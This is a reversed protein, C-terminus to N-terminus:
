TASIDSDEEEKNNGDFDSNESKRRGIITWITTGLLFAYCVAFTAILAPELRQILVDRYYIWQADYTYILTGEGIFNMANSNAVTYLIRTASQVVCNDYRADVGPSFSSDYPGDALDCGALLGYGLNSGDSTYWDTIAFGSMGAEGRLWRTMINYNSGGWSNGNKNFAIMVNMADGIEIAMEFPRLYIQRFTQEDLWAHYRERNTEQDNLVFHKNYVYLGKEQAGLTEYGGIMGTLFPDDSYFEGARGHYPNRQLGLGFGYIGAIGSWLADEGIAQGVRYAVENNFTAAIIGECPYGTPYAKKASSDFQKYFGLTDRMSGGETRGYLWEFGNSANQDITGPKGIEPVAVTQRRGSSFLNTGNRETLDLQGVIQAWKAIDEESAGKAPDFEVGVLDALQWESKSWGFTYATSDFNVKYYNAYADILGATMATRNEFTSTTNNANSSNGVSGIISGSVTTQAATASWNYRDFYPVDNATSGDKNPDLDSFLNRVVTSDVVAGNEVYDYGAGNIWYKYSQSRADSVEVTFVNSADGIGYTSDFGNDTGTTGGHKSKYISNVAEHANRAAVLLYKGPSLVYGGGTYMAGGDIEDDYAAFWKNADIKIEVTETEQPQLLRTKAYGVLQVAPKQVKHARDTVTIKQQLYIQVIEKGARTGTNTVPVRMILDDCDGPDSGTARLDARQKGHNGTYGQEISGGNAQMYLGNNYAMLGGSYYNKEPDPDPIVTPTGYTFTTYSLGYGFPYSVSNGYDYTAVGELMDEYRTEAYRYGVYMGEMNTANSGRSFNAMSPNNYQSTYWGASLGGSPNVTGVLIDAVAKIGDSGPFGIWLAAVKCDGTSKLIEPMDSQPPNAQNILVILKGYKEKLGAIVAKENATLALYDDSAAENTQGGRGILSDSSNNNINPAESGENTMRGLVYIATTDKGYQGYNRVTDTLASWPAEVVKPIKANTGMTGWFGIEDYRRYQLGDGTNYWDKVASNMDLGVKDFEDYFFQRRNIESKVSYARPDNIKNNGAGDLCYMPDYATVGFLSVKSDAALPLINNDNQLLVTGESQTWWAIEGNGNLNDEVSSYWTKYRVPTKGTNVIVDEPKDKFVWDTLLNEVQEDTLLTSAIFFIGLLIAAINFLIKAVLHLTKKM